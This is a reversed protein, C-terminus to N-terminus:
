ETKLAEEIITASIFTRLFPDIQRLYYNFKAVGRRPIYLIDNDKLIYNKSLDGKKIMNNMNVMLVGDKEKMDRILRIEKVNANETPGGALNIADLVSFNSIHIAYSGPQSVEGMVFVASDMYEPIYIIDNNVLKVNLKINARQLLQFLDVWIIQDKGRIIYCKSFFHTKDSTPLGGALAMAELLNGEGTLHFVGPKSVKGLVYVKNNMYKTINVTANPKEYYTEFLDSVSIAANKRDLGGIKFSGVLPLTINGFPGVVHTSSLKPRNWVDIAILDGPGILYKRILNTEHLQLVEPSAFPIDGESIDVRPRDDVDERVPTTGCGIFVLAVFIATMWTSNFNNNRRM